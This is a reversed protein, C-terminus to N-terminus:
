CDVAKHHVYSWLGNPNKHCDIWYTFTEGSCDYPSRVRMRVDEKWQKIDEETWDESDPIFGYESFTLGYEEDVDGVRPEELLSKLDPKVPHNYKYDKKLFYKIFDEDNRIKRQRPGRNYRSYTM